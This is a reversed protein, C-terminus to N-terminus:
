CRGLRVTYPNILLGRLLAKIAPYTKGAPAGPQYTVSVAGPVAVSAIKGGRDLSPTLAGGLAEVAMECCARQVADPVVNIDVAWGDKDTMGSRPWCLAQDARVTTGDWDLGCLYDTARILAAEKSETAAAAWVANGRSTFYTDAYAVSALSQAGDVISGDEVVLSM